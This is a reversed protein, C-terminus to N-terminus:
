PKVPQGSATVQIESKKGSITLQAEYLTKGGESVTEVLLITGGKAAKRIAAAAAAPIKELSTEEETSVISGREDFTVDKAHGNVTLEAEYLRNRHDVETALGRISAGRSQNKIAQQVVIPLDQMKIKKEGADQAFALGTVLSGSAVLMAITKKM